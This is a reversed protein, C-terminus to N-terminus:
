RSSYGTGRCYPCRPEPGGGYGGGSGHCHTCQANEKAVEKMETELADFYGIVQRGLAEYSVATEAIDLVEGAVEDRLGEDDLFELLAMDFKGHVPRGKDEREVVQAFTENNKIEKNM